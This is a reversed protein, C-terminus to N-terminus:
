GKRIEHNVKSTISTGTNSNTGKKKSLLRKANGSLFLEIETNKANTNPLASWMREVFDVQKGQLGFVPYDTAFLLKHAIGQELLWCLGAVGGATQYGSVDVYVNPRNNCLMACEAQYHVSGHALVFDVEPFDKAARDVAMPHACEFDLTPTTAGIHTLVPVGYERCIEYLPYLAPDSLSYGCPPYLKLGDMKEDRLCQEFLAAGQPGWRPDVGVFVKFREPHRNQVERHHQILQTLPPSSDPWVKTFDPLLLVAQSIGAEDMQATLKDCWPDRLTSSHMREIHDRPIPVGRSNLAIQMNDVVGDRFEKPFFRPDAIHCHFDIIEPRRTM